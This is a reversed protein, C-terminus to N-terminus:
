DHEHVRVVLDKKLMRSNPNNSETLPMLGNGYDGEMSSRGPSFSTMTSSSSLRSIGNSANDVATPTGSVQVVNMGENIESEARVFRSECDERNSQRCQQKITAEAAEMAYMVQLLNNDQNDATATATSSAIPDATPPTYLLFSPPHLLLFPRPNPTCM